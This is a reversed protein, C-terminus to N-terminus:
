VAGGLIAAIAMEVDDLRRKTEEFETIPATSIPEFKEESWQGNEYKRWLLDVNMETIPIMNNATIEGSLQSVGTCINHENLQAYFYM